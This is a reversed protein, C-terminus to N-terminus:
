EAQKDIRLGFSMIGPLNEVRMFQKVRFRYKGAYPFDFDKFILVERDIIDGIGDGLPIGTKKDFLLIEQLESKIINKSSDELYYKIYINYYPYMDAYRVNYSIDYADSLNPIEFDYTALTDVNWVSNELDVYDDYIKNPNCGFLILALSFSILATKILSHKM